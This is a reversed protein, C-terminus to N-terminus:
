VQCLIVNYPFDRRLRMPTFVCRDQHAMNPEKEKLRGMEAKMFRNFASLKKKGGTSKAAHFKVPSLTSTLLRTCKKTTHKGVPTPTARAGM